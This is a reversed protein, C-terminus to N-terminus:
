NNQSQNGDRFVKKNKSIYGHLPIPHGKKCTICSLRKKYSKPYQEDEMNGNAAFM